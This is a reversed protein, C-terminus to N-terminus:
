NENRERKIFYVTLTFKPKSDGHMNKYVIATNDM